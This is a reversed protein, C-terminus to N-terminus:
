FKLWPKSYRYQGNSNKSKIVAYHIDINDDKTISKFFEKIYDNNQNKSILKLLEEGIKTFGLIPIQYQDTNIKKVKRILFKNYIFYNITNKNKKPFTFVVDSKSSLLGTDILTIQDSIFVGYKKLLNTQNPLFPIKEYTIMLNAVKTFIQAEKKTLNRLVELTKLSYQGSEEVEDSLIKAWLNQAEENTIKKAYDFYRDIWEDELERASVKEKGELNKTAKVVINELNQQEKEAQYKMRLESREGVTTEIIAGPIIEKLGNSANSIAKTNAETIKELRYSEADAMKKLHRPEYVIGIGKSTVKILKILPEKFGFLDTMEVM